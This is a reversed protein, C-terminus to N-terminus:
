AEVLERAQAAAEHASVWMWGNWVDGRHRRIAERVGRCMDSLEVPVGTLSAAARATVIRGVAGQILLVKATGELLVERLEERLHAVVSWAQWRSLMEDAQLRAILRLLLLDGTDFVRPAKAGAMVRPKVCGRFELDRLQRYTLAHKPELRRLAALTQATTLMPDM